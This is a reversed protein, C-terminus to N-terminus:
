AALALGADVIRQELLWVRDQGWFRENNFICIPVGFIHDELAQEQARNYADLGEGTLYREYDAESLGMGKLLAAVAEPQDAEFERLFFRRYVERSYEVLRGHQEAFLGGILAPQTNYIKLPGRIYYGKAAPLRRIDMYSYRVKFESYQSREGKGKLKLQFPIWRVRVNFKKEFGFLQDFALWAYPSKYDSYMRIEVPEQV